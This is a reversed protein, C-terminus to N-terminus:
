GTRICIFIDADSTASMRAYLSVLMNAQMRGNMWADMRSKKCHLQTLIIENHSNISSFQIGYFSFNVRSVLELEVLGQQIKNKRKELISRMVGSAGNVFKGWFPSEPYKEHQKKAYLQWGNFFVMEEELSKPGSFLGIPANVLVTVTDCTQERYSDSLM